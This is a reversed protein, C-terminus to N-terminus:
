GRGARRGAGPSCPLWGQAEQSERAQEDPGDQDRLTWDPAAKGEEAVFFPNPNITKDEIRVGCGLWWMPGYLM